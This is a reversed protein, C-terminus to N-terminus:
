EETQVGGESALAFTVTGALTGYFVFSLLFGVAMGYSLMNDSYGSLVFAIGTFFALLMACLGIVALLIARRHKIALSLLLLLLALFLLLFGTVLHVALLLQVGTFIQVFPNVSKSGSPFSAFLDLYMGVLFQVILMPMMARSAAVIAKEYRM